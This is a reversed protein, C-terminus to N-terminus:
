VCQEYFELDDMPLTQPISPFPEAITTEDIPTFQGNSNQEDSKTEDQIPTSRIKNDKTKQKSKRSASKRTCRQPRNSKVYYDVCIQKQFHLLHKFEEIDMRLVKPTPKLSKGKSAKTFQRLYIWVKGKRPKVFAYLNRKGLAYM